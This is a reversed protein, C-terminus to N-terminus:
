AEVIAKLDVLRKNVTEIRKQLREIEEQKNQIQRWARPHEKKLLALEESSTGLNSQKRGLEKELKDIEKAAEHKKQLKEIKAMVAAKDHEVYELVEPTLLAKIEDVPVEAGFTEVAPETNDESHNWSSGRYKIEYAKNVAPIYIYSADQPNVKHWGRWSSFEEIARITYYDANAPIGFKYYNGFAYWSEACNLENDARVKSFSGKEFTYRNSIAEKEYNRLSINAYVDVDFVKNFVDMKIM